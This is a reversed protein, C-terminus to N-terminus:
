PFRDSFSVIFIRVKLCVVFLYIVYRRSKKKGDRNVNLPAHVTIGAVHYMQYAVDCLLFLDTFCLLQKREINPQCALISMMPMLVHIPLKISNQCIYSEANM